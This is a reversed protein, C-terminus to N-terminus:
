TSTDQEDGGTYKRSAVSLITAYDDVDDYRTGVRYHRFKGDKGKAGSCAAYFALGTLKAWLPAKPYYSVQFSGAEGIPAPAGARQEKQDGLLMKPKGWDYSTWARPVWQLWKPYDWHKTGKLHPPLASDPM